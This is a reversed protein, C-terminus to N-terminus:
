AVATEERRNERNWILAYSGDAQKTLACNIPAALTPGDLKLSLYPKGAKSMKKWGAGIECRREPYDGFAADHTLAFVNYDPRTGQKGTAPEITVGHATLALTEISGDYGDGQQTFRGIIM